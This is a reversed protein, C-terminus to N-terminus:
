QGNQNSNLKTSDIFTWKHVKDNCYYELMKDDGDLAANIRGQSLGQAGWIWAKANKYQRSVVPYTICALIAIIAIVCILEILKM